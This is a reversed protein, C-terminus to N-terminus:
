WIRIREAKPKFLKDGKKLEFAEYFADINMVPGNARYRSPSHSDTLLRRVMEAERYKRAWVRSWGVFFLQPGNWDAFSEEKKGERSIKYAKYSVALGSLDAINEGLTLKGNVTKNPLPEYRSYQQVLQDALKKFAARDEDTWWNRLNGDGDFQSGQDDFAHSIEHGIVAGIGGYNLADPGSLDFFPPQLIAAPFVIENKPPSYYANVTQPTMGWEERDVPKGLKDIMRQYEVRNSRLMNGFLDNPQVELASYDLWKTPYGIKTKIKSLKEKAASKTKSSMWELEDIGKDFASLLNKVLEDMRRKAEEPFHRQVYIKGVMEGLTGKGRRGSIADVAKKWRPKQEPVGALTRSYLEFHAKEFEESLYPAAMDVIKYRLYTKWDEVSTQKFTTKFAEFFPPTMCNIDEVEPIRANKLLGKWNGTKFKKGLDAVLMKNYRKQVNRLTTRDVQAEALRTELALISDAAQDGGEVGAAKLVTAIYTKLAAQAAKSKEDEKLYYDRDPLSTGSQIMHVMYRSSDKADQSVFVGVPTDVGMAGYRGFATFIKKHSDLSDVRELLNAIPKAGKRNLAAQNMFSKFFDGVKQEDSGAPHDGSAATEVIQRIRLQSLDALATFSGYNSKDAPIETKDLWTGNVYRYLDDQVRTQRDFNEVKLGPDQATASVSIGLLLWGAIATKHM